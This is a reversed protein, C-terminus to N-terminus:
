TLPMEGFTHRRGERVNEMQGRQGIDPEQDEIGIRRQEVAQRDIFFVFSRGSVVSWFVVAFKSGRGLPKKKARRDFATIAPHRNGRAQRSGAICDEGGHESADGAVDWATSVKFVAARSATGTM